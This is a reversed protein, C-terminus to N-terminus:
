EPKGKMWLGGLGALVAVLAEPRDLIHPARWVIVGALGILAVGLVTTHWSAIREKM